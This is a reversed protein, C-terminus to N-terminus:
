LDNIIYGHLLNIFILWNDCTFQTVYVIIVESLDIEM